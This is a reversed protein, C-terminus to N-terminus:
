ETTDEIPEGSILELMEFYELKLEAISKGKFRPNGFGEPLEFNEREMVEVLIEWKQLEYILFTGHVEATDEINLQLWSLWDGPHPLPIPKPSTVEIITTEIPYNDEYFEKYKNFTACSSLIIIALLIIIKKM